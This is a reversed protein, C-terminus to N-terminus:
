SDVTMKSIRVFLIRDLYLMNCGSTWLKNMVDSLIVLM